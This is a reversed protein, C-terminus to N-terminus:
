LGGFHKEADRGTDQADFCEDRCAESGEVRRQVACVSELRTVRRRPTHRTGARTRRRSGKFTPWCEVVAISAMNSHAISSSSNTIAREQTLLSHVPCVEGFVQSIEPSTIFDGKRGFVAHEPNMYYGHTPHGLCLQMYSSVTM